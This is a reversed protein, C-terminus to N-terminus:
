EVEIVSLFVVVIDATRGVRRLVRSVGFFVIHLPIVITDNPNYLPFESRLV